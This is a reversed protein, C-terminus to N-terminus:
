EFTNKQTGWLGVEWKERKIIGKRTSLTWKLRGWLVGSYCYLNLSLFILAKPSGRHGPWLLSMTQAFELWAGRLWSAEWDLRLFFFFITSLFASRGRPHSWCGTLIGAQSLETGGPSNVTQEAWVQFLWIHQQVRGCLLYKLFTAFIFTNEAGKLCSNEVVKIQRKLCRLATEKFHLCELLYSWQRNGAKHADIRVSVVAEQLLKNRRQILVSFAIAGWELVRAQFIGHVSSGPLNSDMPNRLTPCSQAVESESKVQMCQLLFHCGVGTNKGPSDWPHPLRTPQWRHPQVSDSM